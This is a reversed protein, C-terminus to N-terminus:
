GRNMGFTRVFLRLHGTPAAGVTFVVRLFPAIVDQDILLGAGATVTGPTGGPFQVIDWHGLGSNVSPDEFTQQVQVTGAVDCFVSGAVRTDVGTEVPGITVVALGAVNPDGGKARDTNYGAFQAM